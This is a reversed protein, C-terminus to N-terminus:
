RKLKASFVTSREDSERPGTNTSRASVTPARRMASWSAYM